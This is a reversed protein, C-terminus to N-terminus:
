RFHYLCNSLKFNLEQKFVKKINKYFANNLSTNLYEKKKIIIIKIINLKLGESWKILVKKLVWKGTRKFTEFITRKSVPEAPDQNLEGRPATGLQKALPTPADAPREASSLITIPPQSPTSIGNQLSMDRLPIPRATHYAELYPPSLQIELLPIRPPYVLLLLLEYLPPLRVGGEQLTDPLSLILKIDYM